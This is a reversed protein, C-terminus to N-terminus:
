LTRHVEDHDGEVAFVQQVNAAHRLSGKDTRVEGYLCGSFLPLSQKFAHLRVNASGTLSTCFNSWSRDTYVEKDAADLRRFVTFSIYRRPPTAAASPASPTDSSAEGTRRRCSM